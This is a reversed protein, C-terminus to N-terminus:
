RPPKNVQASKLQGPISPTSSALKTELAATLQKCRKPQWSDYA